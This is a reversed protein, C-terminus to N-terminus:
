SGPTVTARFGVEGHNTIAFSMGDDEAWRHLTLEDGARAPRRYALEALVVPGGLADELYRLYAAHNVHDFSDCDSRRAVIRTREADAPPDRDEHRAPLIPRRPGEPDLTPALPEDTIAERTADPVRRMRGQPGIWIAHIAARGLLTGDDRVLAQEVECHVRGVARLASRVTLTTDLGFPETRHIRARHVVFYHGNQLLSTLGLDPARIWQWRCHECYSLMTPLAVVHDVGCEYGRVAVPVAFVKSM